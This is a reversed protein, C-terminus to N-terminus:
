QKDPSGSPSNNVTFGQCPANRISDLLLRNLHFDSMRTVEYGEDYLRKLMHAVRIASEAFWFRGWQRGNPMQVLWHDDGTGVLIFPFFDGASHGRIGGNSALHGATAAVGHSM